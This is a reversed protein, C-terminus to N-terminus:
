DIDDEDDDDEVILRYDPALGLLDMLGIKLVRALKVLTNTRPDGRLEEEIGRITATSVHAREALVKKTMSFALRRSKLRPGLGPFQLTPIRARKDQELVVTM